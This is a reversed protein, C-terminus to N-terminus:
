EHKQEKIEFTQNIGNSVAQVFKEDQSLEDYGLHVLIGHLIEHCLTEEQEENTMNANITIACKEFDIQGFHTNDSNFVDDRESVLHPIGCIMIIKRNYKSM